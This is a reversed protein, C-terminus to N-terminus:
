EQNRSTVSTLGRALVRAMDRIFMDPALVTHVIETSKVHL